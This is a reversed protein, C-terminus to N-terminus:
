QGIQAKTPNSFMNKVLWCLTFSILHVMPEDIDWDKSVAPEKYDEEEDDDSGEADQENLTDGTGNFAGVGTAIVVDCLEALDDFLPFSKTMIKKTIVRYM